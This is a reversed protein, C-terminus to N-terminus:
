CFIHYKFDTDQLSNSFHMVCRSEECHSLGFTHGLEHIAERIVRQEFLKNTDSKKVYLEQRLRPLYIAAVRGGLHAEGPVFNLDDSYADFNCIALIKTNSDPDYNQILWDLIKTQYGNSEVYITYIHQLCQQQQHKFPFLYCAIVIIM